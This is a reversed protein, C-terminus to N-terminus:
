EDAGGEIQRRIIEGLEMPMQHLEQVVLHEPYVESVFDTGSGIGLGIVHVGENKADEALLKKVRETNGQGDSLVVIVKQSDPRGQKKLLALAHELGVDDNTSSGGFDRIRPLLEEREQTYDGTLDKHIATDSSFGVIGFPIELQHLAEGAMILGLVSNDWKADGEKGMSGSQDLVFVFEFNRQEPQSRRLWVKPDYIGTREYRAQVKMAQKVDLKKGSRQHPRAYEPESNLHLFNGLEGALEDAMRAVKSHYLDYDSHIGEFKRQLELRQELLKNLDAERNASDQSGADPGGRHSKVREAQLKKGNERRGDVQETELKENRRKALGETVKDALDRAQEPPLSSSGGEARGSGPTAPASDAPGQRANGSKNEGSQQQESGNQSDQSDQKQGGQQNGEAAQSQETKGSEGNQETESKQQEPTGSDTKNSEAGQETEGSQKSQGAEGGQETESKQQESQDTEGSQETQSKQQESKNAEGSQGAQQQESKGPQPSQKGELAQQLDEKDKKLLEEYIPWLKTKVVEVSDAAQRRSELLNLDRHAVSRKLDYAQRITQSNDQIVQAVEPDLDEPSRKFLSDELIANTFQIHRPLSPAAKAAAAAAEEASLKGNSRELIEQALERRYAALPQKLDEQYVDDLFTPAGPYRDSLLTQTRATEVTNYLAMFNENNSWEPELLWHSYRAKAAESLVKGLAYDVSRNELDEKRFQIEHSGDPLFQHRWENGAVVRTGLEGSFARALTDIQYFKEEIESTKGGDPPATSPKSVATRLESLAIPDSALPSSVLRDDTVPEVSSSESPSAAALKTAIGSAPYKPPFDGIRM